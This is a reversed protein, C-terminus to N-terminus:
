ILNFTITYRKKAQTNITKIDTGNKIKCVGGFRSFVKANVLKGKKWEMDIVFGGRAVIGTIQGDPWAVPLAPLLEIYGQHSQVLMESIAAGSGFNADLQYGHGLLNPYSRLAIVNKLADYAQQGDQLRAWANARWSSGWGAAINTRNHLTNRIANALLTDKSSTINYGPYLGFLHSLHNHRPDKDNWDHYWEQLNGKKGIHYPYLKSLAEKVEKQMALDINLVRASNLYGVFLERIMALDATGGYSTEGPYNEATLFTNEPSTSPATILYGNKDQILFGLCFRVAGKILPYGQEKLFLKDQTFTYHEWLHTSLWVGGMPWNAWCPNGEGAGVPNSMAWIDTNHHCAWGGTNYYNKATAQGSKAVKGILDFLPKHLETLNAAEVGWYNMQTNINVTYNSSWGPRLQENWLGQLNTALGGPRSSSILLYRSYQYFLAFLGSDEKGKKFHILRNGTTENEDNPKGLNISVRDFYKRYDKVHLAQLAAFTKASTKKLYSQTLAKEDKGATGPNKDYGNYSTAMALVLVVNNANNIRLTTDTTSKQGDTSLVKLVACFRMGNKLDYIIAPAVKRYNPEAHVPAWGKLQLSNFNASSNARLLSNFNCTFNLKDKGEATFKIVIVHDPYSAFTQRTYNTGNITYSVRTIANQIDLERKYNVANGKHAFNFYLNGLPAYSESYPGQMFRMLSDAKKYNEGFLTKRVLPLYKKADPNIKSADIPGGSWLSAENLSIKETEIGGYVMAGLMGNGIPLAEESKAAPETYWLKLQNSRQALVSHNFALILIVLILNRNKM